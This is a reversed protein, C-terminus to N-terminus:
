AFFRTFADHASLYSCSFGIQFPKWVQKVYSQIIANCVKDIKCIPLITFRTSDILIEFHMWQADWENRTIKNTL